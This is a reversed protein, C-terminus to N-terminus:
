LLELLLAALHAGEQKGGHGETGKRQLDQTTGDAQRVLISEGQSRM